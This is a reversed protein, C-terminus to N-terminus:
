KDVPLCTNSICGVQTQVSNWLAFFGPACCIDGHAQIELAIHWYIQPPPFTEMSLHGISCKESTPLYFAPLCLMLSLSVLSKLDIM